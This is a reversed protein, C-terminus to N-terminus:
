KSRIEEAWLLKKFFHGYSRADFTSPLEQRHFQQLTHQLSSYRVPTLIRSLRLPIDAYGLPVVYSIAELAPPPDGRVIETEPDRSSRKKSVFPESPQLTVYDTADAVVAKVARSIYFRLGLQRDELAIEIRDEYNGIYSQTFTVVLTSPQGHVVKRDTGPM